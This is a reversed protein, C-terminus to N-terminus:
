SNEIGNTLKTIFDPIDLEPNILLNISDIIEFDKNLKIAGIEIIKDTKPNIGTTEFDLFVYNNKM